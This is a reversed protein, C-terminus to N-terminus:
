DMIKKLEKEILKTLGEAYGIMIVKQIHGNKAVYVLAPFGKISKKQFDEKYEFDKAEMFVMKKKKVGLKILDTMGKGYNGKKDKSGLIDGKARECWPCNKMTLMVVKGTNSKLLKICNKKQNKMLVWCIVSVIFILALLSIIILATKSNM